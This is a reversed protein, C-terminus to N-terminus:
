SVSAVHWSGNKGHELVMVPVAQLNPGTLFCYALEGVVACSGVHQFGKVLDVGAQASAAEINQKYDAPCGPGAYSPAEYSCAKAYDHAAMADAWGSATADPGPKGGGGTLLLGVVVTGVLALTFAGVYPLYKKM